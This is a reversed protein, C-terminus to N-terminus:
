HSAWSRLSPVTYIWRSNSGLASENLNFLLLSQFRLYIRQLQGGNHESLELSLKAMWQLNNANKHLNKKCWMREMYKQNRRPRDEAILIYAVENERIIHNRSLGHSWNQWVYVTTPVVEPEFATDTATINYNHGEPCDQGARNTCNIGFVLPQPLCCVYINRTRWPRAHFPRFFFVAICSPVPSLKEM